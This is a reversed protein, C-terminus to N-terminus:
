EDPLMRARECSMMEEKALLIDQPAYTAGCPCRFELHNDRDMRFSTGSTAIPRDGVNYLLLEM